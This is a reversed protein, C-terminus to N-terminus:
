TSSHQREARNRDDLIIKATWLAAKGVVEPCKDTHAGAEEFAKYEIRDQLNFTRGFVKQQV